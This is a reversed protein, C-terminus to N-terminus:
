ESTKEKSESLDYPLPFFSGHPYPKIRNRKLIDMIKSVSEKVDRPIAIDGNLAKLLYGKGMLQNVDRFVTSYRDFEESAANDLVSLYAVANDYVKKLQEGGLGFYHDAISVYYDGVEIYDDRMFSPISPDQVVQNLARRSKRNDVGDSAAMVIIGIILAVFLWLLLIVAARVVNAWFSGFFMIETFTMAESESSPASVVIQKQGIIKGVPNFSPLVGEEHIVSFSISYWEKSDLTIKPIEVFCESSTPSLERYRDEIHQACTEDLVVEQLVRGNEVSFGFRGEDYDNWRLNQNGVNQVKIVYFSINQNGRLVDVTDVLLKVTAPADSKNFMKAQSVIEYRLKPTKVHFTQFVGWGFGLVAVGALFWKAFPSDIITQKETM